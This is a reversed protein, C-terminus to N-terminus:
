PLFLVHVFAQLCVRVIFDTGKAVVNIVELTKRLVIMREKLALALDVALKAAPQASAQSM